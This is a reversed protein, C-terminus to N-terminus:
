KTLHSLSSNLQILILGYNQIRSPVNLCDNKKITWPKPAKAKLLLNSPQLSILFFTSAACCILGFDTWSWIKKTLVRKGLRPCLIGSCFQNFRERCYSAWLELSSTAVKLAQESAGSFKQDHLFNWNGFVIIRSRSQEKRVVRISQAWDAKGIFKRESHLRSYKCITVVAALLGQWYRSPEQQHASYYRSFDM